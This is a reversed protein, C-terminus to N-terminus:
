LIEIQERSVYGKGAKECEKEIADLDLEGLEMEEVEFEEISDTLSNLEEGNTTERTKVAHSKEM